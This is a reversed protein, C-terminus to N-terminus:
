ARCHGQRSVQSAVNKGANRIFVSSPIHRFVTPIVNPGNAYVLTSGIEDGILWLKEKETYFCYMCGLNCAAGSPKVMVQFHM